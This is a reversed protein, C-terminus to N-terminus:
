KPVITQLINCIDTVSLLPHLVEELHVLVDSDCWLSSLPSKILVVNQVILVVITAANDERWAACEHAEILIAVHFYSAPFPSVLLVAYQAAVFREFKAIVVKVIIVVIHVHCHAEVALPHEHVVFIHIFFVVDIVLYIAYACETCSISKATFWVTPPQPPFAM